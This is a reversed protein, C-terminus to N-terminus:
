EETDVINCGITDNLQAFLGAVYPDEFSFGKNLEVQILIALQRVNDPRQTCTAARRIDEMTKRMVCRDTM